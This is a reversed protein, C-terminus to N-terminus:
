KQTSFKTLAVLGRPARKDKWCLLQRHEWCYSSQRGRDARIRSYSFPRSTCHLHFIFQKLNSLNPTQKKGLMDQDIRSKVGDANAAIHGGM